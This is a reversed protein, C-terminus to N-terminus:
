APKKEYYMFLSEIVGHHQSQRDAPDAIIQFVLGRDSFLIFLLYFLLCFDDNIVQSSKKEKESGIIKLINGQPWSAASFRTIM